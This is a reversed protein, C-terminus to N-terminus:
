LETDVKGALELSKAKQREAYGEAVIHDNAEVRERTRQRILLEQQYVNYHIGMTNYNTKKGAMAIMVMDQAIKM